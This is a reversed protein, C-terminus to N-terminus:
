HAHARPTVHRGRSPLVLAAHKLAPTQSSVQSLVGAAAHHGVVAQQPRHLECRLVLHAAAVDLEPAPLLGDPVQVGGQRSLTSGAAARACMEFNPFAM